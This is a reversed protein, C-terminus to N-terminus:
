GRKMTFAPPVIRGLGYGGWYAQGVRAPDDLVFVVAADDAKAM